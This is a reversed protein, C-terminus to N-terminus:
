LSKVIAASLDNPEFPKQLFVAGERALSALDQDPLIGSMFIVKVLPNSEKLKKFIEKGNMKPQQMDILVLRIDKWQARYIELAKLGDEATLVQFGLISLMKGSTRRFIEEDDVLLVIGSFDAEPIQEAKIIKAESSAAKLTMHSLAKLSEVSKRAEKAATNILKLHEDKKVATPEELAIETQLLIGWFHNQFDHALVGARKSIADIKRYLIFVAFFLAIVLLLSLIQFFHTKFFFIFHVM